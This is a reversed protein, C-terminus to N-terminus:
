SKYPEIDVYLLLSSFAYDGEQRGEEDYLACTRLGRRICNVPMSAYAIFEASVLPIDEDQVTFSILAADPNKIVFSKSQLYIIHNQMLNM